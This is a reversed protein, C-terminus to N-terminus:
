ARCSGRSLLAVSIASRRTLYLPDSHLTTPPPSAGLGKQAGELYLLQLTPNRKLTTIYVYQLEKLFSTCEPSASCIGREKM